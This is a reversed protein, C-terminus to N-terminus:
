CRNSNRIHTRHKPTRGRKEHIESLRELPIRADQLERIFGILQGNPANLQGVIYTIALMMGLTINGDIVLKAALITILINKLENIFSSGVSQSQNLALGEMSIKFLRAQLNEWSWRKQKEANHLKIEQMGNILEIVKSQEESVKSFQKYDLDRRKKLFISIWLFYLISGIIFIAFIQWNYYALIFSFVILNVMSFLVNLSSTTLIREIRKHDKIRQLIDGTMRTDFFAIPLNMLKIFFDSVLSINIRTSLHLLIWGRVVEIATKGLFLALQGFLILYIFHIDQNNIGVDVISQTLFPFTLQLLSGAWM